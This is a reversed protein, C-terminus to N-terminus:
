YLRLNRERDTEILFIGKLLHKFKSIMLKLKRKLKLNPRISETSGLINILQDISLLMVSRAHLL